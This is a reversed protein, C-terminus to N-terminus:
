ATWAALATHALWSLRGLPRKIIGVDRRFLSLVFLEVALDLPVKRFVGAHQHVLSYPLPVALVALRCDISKALREAAPCSGAPTPVTPLGRVLRMRPPYGGPNPGGPLLSDPPCVVQETRSVRLWNDPRQRGRIM